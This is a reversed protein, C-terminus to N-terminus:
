ASNRSAKRAAFAIFGIGAFLLSYTTPEPVTAVIYDQGSTPSVSRNVQYLTLDYVHPGAYSSYNDLLFQASGTNYAAGSGAVLSALSSATKQVGGATLVKDDNAVEWLALQFAAANANNGVTGAYYADYLKQIDGARSTFFSAVSSTVSPTYNDIYATSSFHAPDVCYALFSTADADNATPSVKINQLGVSFTSTAVPLQLASDLHSSMSTEKVFVDAHAATCLTFLSTALLVAVRSSAFNM